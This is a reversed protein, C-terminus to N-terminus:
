YNQRKLSCDWLKEITFPSQIIMPINKLEALYQPLESERQLLDDGSLRDVTYLYLGAKLSTCSSMFLILIFYVAKM